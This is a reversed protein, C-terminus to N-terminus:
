HTHDLGGFKSFQMLEDADADPKIFSLGHGLNRIERSAMVDKKKKWRMKTLQYRCFNTVAYFPHGTQLSALQLCFTVSVVVPM